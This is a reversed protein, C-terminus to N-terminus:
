LRVVCQGAHSALAAAWIEHQAVAEDATACGFRPGLCGAREALFAAWMQQLIDPSGPEPIAGAITKFPTGLGFDTKSWFQGNNFLGHDVAVDFCRRTPPNFLRNLRATKM